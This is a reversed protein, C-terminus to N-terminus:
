MQAFTRRKWSRIYPADRTSCGTRRVPAFPCAANARTLQSSASPVMALATAFTRSRQPPSAM